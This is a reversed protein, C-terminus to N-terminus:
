RRKKRGTFLDMGILKEPDKMRTKVAIFPAEVPGFVDFVQGIQKGKSDAIAEGIRVQREARLILNGNSSSIHSLTGVRNRQKM